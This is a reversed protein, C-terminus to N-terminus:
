PLNRRLKCAPNATFLHQPKIHNTKLPEKKKKGFETYHEITQVHQLQVKAKKPQVSPEADIKHNAMQLKKM